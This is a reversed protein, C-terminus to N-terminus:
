LKNESKWQEAGKSVRCLHEFSTWELVESCYYKNPDTTTVATSM